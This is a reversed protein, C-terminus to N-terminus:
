KEAITKLNGLGESFQDGLMRNTDVFIGVVKGIYPTRGRMAWTVDTSGGRPVLTFEAVNHGELPKTFDLNMTVRSTSADVIEMKGAGAKANGAWAYSAGKGSPTGSYTRKMAPDLKEYPSWATWQHFDAILPYIKDPPANISATRQVNTQGPRTTAFALIAVVLVLLGIAIKKLM